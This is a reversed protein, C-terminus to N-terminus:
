LPTVGFISFSELTQHATQPSIISEGFFHALALQLMFCVPTVAAVNGFM